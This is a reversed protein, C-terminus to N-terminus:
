VCPEHSRLEVSCNKDLLKDVPKQPLWKTLVDCLFFFELISVNPLHKMM